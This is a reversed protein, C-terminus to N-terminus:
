KNTLHSVIKLWKKWDVELKKVRDIYNGLRDNLGQMEKKEREAAELFTKAAQIKLDSQFFEQNM